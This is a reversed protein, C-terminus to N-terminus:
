SVTHFPGGLLAAVNNRDNESQPLEADRTSYAMTAVGGSIKIRNLRRAVVESKLKQGSEIALYERTFIDV